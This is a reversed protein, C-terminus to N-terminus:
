AAEEGDREQLRRSYHDALVRCEQVQGRYHNGLGQFYSSRLHEWRWGWYLEDSSLKRRHM